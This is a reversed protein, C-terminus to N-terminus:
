EINESTFCGKMRRVIFCVEGHSGDASMSTPVFSLCFEPLDANM